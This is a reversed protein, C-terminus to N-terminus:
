PKEMWARQYHIQCKTTAQTQYFVISYEPKPTKFKVLGSKTATERVLLAAILSHSHQLNIFLRSPRSPLLPGPIPKLAGIGSAIEKCM